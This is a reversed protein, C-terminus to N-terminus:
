VSELRQDSTASCFNFLFMHLYEDELQTTKDTQLSKTRVCILCSCTICKLIAYNKNLSNQLLALTIAYFIEIFHTFWPLTICLLVAQLGNTFQM